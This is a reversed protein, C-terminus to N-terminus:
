IRQQQKSNRYAVSENKMKVMIYIFIWFRFRTMHRVIHSYKGLWKFTQECVENNPKGTAFVQSFKNMKPHYRVAEDDIKCTKETHGKVHFDDVMFMPAKIEEEKQLREYKKARERERDDICYHSYNGWVRKDLYGHKLLKKVVPEYQCARDYAIVAPRMALAQENRTYHFNMMLAVHTLSECYFMEEFWAVTGCPKVAFMVGATRATFREVVVRDTNNCNFKSHDDFADPIYLVTDADNDFLEDDIDDESVGLITSDDSDDHDDVIGSVVAGVGEFDTVISDTKFEDCSIHQNSVDSSCPTSTSEIKRPRGRSKKKVPKPQMNNMHNTTNNLWIPLNDIHTLTDIHKFLVGAGDNKYTTVPTRALRASSRRPTSLIDHHNCADVPLVPAQKVPTVPITHTQENDFKADYDIITDACKTQVIQQSGEVVTRVRANQKLQRAMKM